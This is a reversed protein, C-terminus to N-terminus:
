QSDSEFDANLLQEFGARLNPSSPRPANPQMLKGAPDVLIYRPLSTIKFDTIIKSNWGSDALLQTGTLGHEDIYKKWIEVENGNELDICINIFNFGQPSYKRIIERLYPAETESAGSKMSWVQIFVYGGLFDKISTMKGNYDPYKYDVNIIKVPKEIEHEKKYYNDISTIFNEIKKQQFVNFFEDFNANQLRRTDATRKKELESKFESYDMNMLNKFDVRNELIRSTAMFNNEAAGDGSFALSKTFSTADANIIMDYGDKVYLDAFNAGDYLQYFGDSIALTDNFFGAENIKIKKTKNKNIKIYIYDGNRNEITATIKLLGLKPLIKISDIPKEVVKEAVKEVVKEEIKTEVKETIKDPETKPITTVQAFTKIFSAFILTILLINKMIM